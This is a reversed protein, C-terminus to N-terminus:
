KMEKAISMLLELQKPSLSKFAAMAKSLKRPSPFNEEFFDKPEIDLFECIYIFMKMSPLAKKNEINNIYNPSQGLSLSMDRASINKETRLKAIREAIFDTDM